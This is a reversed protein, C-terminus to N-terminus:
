VCGPQADRGGASERRCGGVFLVTTLAPECNEAISDVWKGAGAGADGGAAAVRNEDLVFYASHEGTTSVMLLRLGPWSM